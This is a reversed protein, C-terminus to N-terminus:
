CSKVKTDFFELKNKKYKRKQNIKMIPTTTLTDTQSRFIGSGRVGEVLPFLYWDFSITVVASLFRMANDTMRFKSWSRGGDMWSIGAEAPIVTLLSITPVLRFNYETKNGRTSPLGWATWRIACVRYTLPWPSNYEKMQWGRPPPSRDIKTREWESPLPINRRSFHIDRELDSSNKCISGCNWRLIIADRNARWDYDSM